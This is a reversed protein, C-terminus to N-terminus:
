RRAVEQVISKKLTEWHEKAWLLTRFLQSWKARLSTHDYYSMSQVVHPSEVEVMYQRVRNMELELEQYSTITELYETLEEDTYLEKKYPQENSKDRLTVKRPITIRLTPESTSLGTTPDSSSIMSLM